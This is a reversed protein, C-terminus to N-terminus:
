ICTSGKSYGEVSQLKWQLVVLFALLLARLIDMLGSLCVSVDIGRLRAFVDIQIRMRLSIQQPMM